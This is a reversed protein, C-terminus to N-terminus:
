NKTRPYTEPFANPPPPHFFSKNIVLHRKFTESLTSQIHTEKSYIGRKSVALIGLEDKQDLCLPTGSSTM